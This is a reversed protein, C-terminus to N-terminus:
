YTLLLYLIISEASFVVLQAIFILQRRELRDIIAGSFLSVSFLCIATVLNIYALAMEDGTLEWALLSRLLVTAFFGFFLATNGMFLWRFQDNGASGTQM